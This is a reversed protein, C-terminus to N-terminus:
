TALRRIERVLDDILFPKTILGAMGCANANDRVYDFTHATLGVVPIGPRARHILRTTEFGDLAPMEIDCFVLAPSFEPQSEFLALAQAGSYACVPSAGESALLESAVMMNIPNDEIVLIQLHELRLPAAAVPSGGGSAVEPAQLAQLPLFVTFASGRDVASSVSIHGNLQEILQRTIALGLGSGEQTQAAATQGREFPEFLRGALDEPIGPGSDRVVFSLGSPTAEVSIHVEGRVTYKIANSLLNLLIQRILTPDGEYYEAMGPAVQVSLALGKETALPETFEAIERLLEAIGVPEIHIELKGSEIRSIDLVDSALVLLHKSAGLIQSFVRTARPSDVLREGVQALGVIMNLPTRIEHSIRAVFTSKASSAAEAAARAASAETVDLAHAIFGGPDTGQARLPQYTIRLHRALGSGDLVPGTDFSAEHGSRVRILADQSLVHRGPELVDRLTPTGTDGSPIDTSLVARCATNATRLRLETDWCALYGPMVAVLTNALSESDSLQSGSERVAHELRALDARQSTESRVRETIDRAIKSIGVIRGEADRIPSLTVSVHVLSGDKRVRVTDFPAISEGRAMCALLYDEEQKLDEPFVILMPMGIAENASYGFLREAGPNWSTVIGSLNKSIIADDSCRVIEALRGIQIDRDYEAQLDSLTVIVGKRIGAEDRLATAQALHYRGGMVVRESTPEGDLLVAKALEELTAKNEPPLSTALPQGLQGGAIGLKACAQPNARLLHLNMDLVILSAGVSREINMLVEHADALAKANARMQENALTLEENGLQLEENSAQLEESAIILEEIADRKQLEVRELMATLSHVQERAMVLEDHAWASATPSDGAPPPLVHFGIVIHGDSEYRAGLVQASMRCIMSRDGHLLAAPRGWVPADPMSTALVCLSGADTRLEPRLMSRLTGDANREFGLYPSLDGWTRVIKRDRDILLSPVADRQLLSQEFATDLRADLDRRIATPYGGANVGLLGPSTPPTQRRYLRIGKLAPTFRSDEPSLSESMGLMLEGGKSLSRAFGDLVRDRALRDLYILVNRCVVLDINTLAPDVLLDHAAFVCRERLAHSVKGQDGDLAFFRDLRVPTIAALDKLAYHGARAVAVAAADVDTAFIRTRRNLGLDAEVEELLMALTYAEQGSACGAVWIRFADDAPHRALRSKLHERLQEFIEPDRFFDTVSIMMSQALAAIEGHSGELTSVYDSPLRLGLKAMRRLIVRQLVGRSYEHAQVHSHTAVLGMVHDLM